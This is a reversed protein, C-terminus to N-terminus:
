DLNINKLATDTNNVVTELHKWVGTDKVINKELKLSKCNKDGYRRGLPCSVRYHHNQGIKPNIMFNAHCNIGEICEIVTHQNLTLATDTNIISKVINDFHHRGRFVHQMMHLSSPVTIDSENGITPMADLFLAGQFSWAGM